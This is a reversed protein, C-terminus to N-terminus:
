VVRTRKGGLGGSSGVGKRRGLGTGDREARDRSRAPDVSGGSPCSKLSTSSGLHALSLASASSGM